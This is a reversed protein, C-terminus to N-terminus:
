AIHLELTVTFHEPTDQIDLLYKNQYSLELRRKINKLGIGGNESARQSNDKTNFVIMRFISNTKSVDIKITNKKETFHSVHKFANEVFPVLLLPPLTFNIMDEACSFEITYNEDKRLKQLEVYNKLYGIEKEVPIEHGNCEYLQYRLMDSFKSLTERASINQKDIQFYITNISNFLFHPNIQAKLYELETNLKEVEIKRIIERQLYWQKSLHIATAFSL